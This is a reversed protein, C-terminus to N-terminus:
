EGRMGEVTSPWYGLRGGASLWIKLPKPKLEDGVSYGLPFPLAQSAGPLLGEFTGREDLRNRLVYRSRPPFGIEGTLPEPTNNTIKVNLVLNIGQADPTIEFDVGLPKTRQAQSLATILADRAGKPCTFYSPLMGVPIPAAGLELTRGVCDLVTVGPLSPLTLGLLDGDKSWAAILANREGEFLFATLGAGADVEGKAEADGLLRNLVALAAGAPKVGGDREFMNMYDNLLHGPFRADYRFYRAGRTWGLSQIASKLSWEVNQILPLWDTVKPEMTEQGPAYFRSFRGYEVTWVPRNHKEAVARLFEGKAADRAYDSIFDFYKPGHLELIRELFPRSYGGHTAVQCTPDAEKAAEYAAKLLKAYEDASFIHYPEDIILWHRIHEKYHGVLTRVFRKWDEVRIYGKLRGRCQISDDDPKETHLAWKPPRYSTIHITPFFQIGAERARAVVDDFWVWRDPEPQVYNWTALYGGPSLTNEWRFGLRALRDVCQPGLSAYLGLPGDPRRNSEVVCFCQEDLVKHGRSDTFEMVAKFSGRLTRPLQVPHSTAQGPEMTLTHEGAGIRKAFLDVVCWRVPLRAPRDSANHGRLELEVPEGVLFINGKARCVLGAEVSSRPVYSPAEGPSLQGMALLVSAPEDSEASISLQAATAGAPAQGSASFRQWDAGPERETARVAAFTRSRGGISTTASVSVRVRSSSRAYVSVTHAADAAISYPRSSLITRFYRKQNTRSRPQEALPLCVAARGDPGKGAQVMDPTLATEGQYACHWGHGVGVDFSSNYLLNSADVPELEVERERSRNLLPRGKPAVYWDPDDTILMSDFIIRTKMKLVRVSLDRGPRTTTLQQELWMKGKKKGKPPYAYVARTGNLDVELQHSEPEGEAYVFLLVRYPGPPLDRELQKTLVAKTPDDRKGYLLAFWGDGVYGATRNQHPRFGGHMKFDEPELFRTYGHAPAAAFTLAIGLSLLRRTHM